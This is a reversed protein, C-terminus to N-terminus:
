LGRCRKPRKWKLRKDISRDLILARRPYGPEIEDSSFARLVAEIDLDPHFEEWAKEERPKFGDSQVVAAAQAASTFQMPPQQSRPLVTRTRTSRDRRPYVVSIVGNAANEHGLRGRPGTCNYGGPGTGGVPIETGDEDVYRGGGGPGGPIYRMKKRPPESSINAPASGKPRAAEVNHPRSPRSRPPVTRRPTTAPTKFLPTM